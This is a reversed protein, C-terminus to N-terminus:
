GDAEAPPEEPNDLPLRITFVAGQGVAGGVNIQGGHKVTVVDRCIALGQGTGKGVGKTTFFPDFIRDVLAAPVGSGNDAISIEVWDGVRATRVHISGPLPKGSGEIAHVANVILNLFVQNMEGAYCPVAPLDPALDRTVVAVHKWTNRSVTLTSEIARNLDTAAKASTGPHSFEKMSLVIRAIQAVGDLSESIAVPIERLLYPLKVAASVEGFRGADGVADFASTLKGVSTGLFRLNDGIYQIPTNIEHAIGAALQGVSALRSAQLAERQAQKLNEIDRFSIVCARLAGGERIPSCAYAVELMAGANTVFVADDDRLVQGDVLVQRWPSADFGIDEGGRRVRMLDDLFCGELEGEIVDSGLLRRASANAFILQGIRDVVLVGEFLSDAIGKLRERSERLATDIRTRIEVERRLEATRELVLRELERQQDALGQEYLRRLTADRFLLVAGDLRGKEHIPTVQYEVHFCTGDHRNFVDDRVQEAVGRLYASRVPSTELPYSEGDERYRQLATHFCSGIMDDPARGLINGATQNAFTIHGTHSLGIIGEGAAGLILEYRHRLADLEAERQKMETIDTRVGVTGGDRTRYERHLFWRGDEMRIVFPEGSAQRHRAMRRDFWAEPALGDLRYLGADLGVRIVTEFSIGPEIRQSDPGFTSLYQSNFVILRDAADFVAIGDVLSEIADALHQQALRARKEAAVERTIDVGVGRYGVFSGGQDNVPIGSIRITRADAGVAPGVHFVVDRFPRRAAIDAAHEVALDRNDDELGVEFFSVGLVAAPKVGLVNAIRESVFTLRYDADTEWFWDSASGALDRFRSESERLEQEALKRVSIDRIIAVFRRKSGSAIEGISLEAPFDEGSRRRGVIQRGVGVMGARGNRLCEEVALTSAEGDAEVILSLVSDGQLQEAGCGFAREAARNASEIRGGEDIVVVAEGVNDMVANFRAEADERVRRAAAELDLQLADLANANLRREADAQEYAASVMKYLRGCDVTGDVTASRLQRALLKHM